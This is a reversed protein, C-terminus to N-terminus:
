RNGPSPRVRRFKSFMGQSAGAEHAQLVTGPVSVSVKTAGMAGIIGLAVGIQVSGATFLWLYHDFMLSGSVGALIIVTPVWNRKWGRLLQLGLYAIALVGLLGSEVVFLAFFNHVPQPESAIAAIEPNADREAMYRGPGVGTLPWRETMALAQRLLAVRGNGATEVGQMTREGKVQWGDRAAPVALALGLAFGALVLLVPRRGRSRDRGALSALVLMAALAAAALAAAVSSSLGVMVGSAFASFAGFVPGILGRRASVAAIAVALLCFGALPNPNFMTGSPIMAANPGEGFRMFPDLLEGLAHLGVARKGTFQGAAIIAEFTTISLVTLVVPRVLQPRREIQRAMTVAASFHLLTAAGMMSPHVAFAVMVAVLMAVLGRTVPTTPWRQGARVARVADMVGCAVLGVAFIDVLSFFPQRRWRNGSPDGLFVLFFVSTVIAWIVLQDTLGNRGSTNARTVKVSASTGGPPFKRHTDVVVSPSAPANPM